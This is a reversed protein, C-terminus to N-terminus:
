LVLLEWESIECHDGEWGDGCICQYVSVKDICTGGNRCPNSECDNIDAIFRFFPAISVTYFMIMIIVSASDPRVRTVTPAESAKRASAASSAGPRAGVAGTLDACM